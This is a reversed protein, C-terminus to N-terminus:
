PLATWSVDIQNHTATGITLTPASPQTHTIAEPGDASETGAANKVKLKVAPVLYV